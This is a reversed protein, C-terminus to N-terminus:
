QVASPMEREPERREIPPGVQELEAVDRGALLRGARRAVEDVVHDRRWQDGRESNVRTRGLEIETQRRREDHHVAIAPRIEDVRHVRGVVLREREVTLTDAVDAQVELRTKELGATRRM